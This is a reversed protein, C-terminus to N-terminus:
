HNEAALLAEVQGIDLRRYPQGDVPNIPVRRMEDQSFMALDIGYGEVEFSALAIRQEGGGSYRYRREGEDFDIRRDLLYIDLAEPKDAFAHLQIHNAETVAGSVAGGVLRPQFDALQRMVRLAIRRMGQLHQRYAEGGFLRQYEIVAQQVQANDPLASRPPLGLREAAKQKALRYDTVQEECIIRAAEQVISYQM